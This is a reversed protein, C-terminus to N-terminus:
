DEEEDEIDDSDIDNVSEATEDNPKQVQKGIMDMLRDAYKKMSNVLNSYELPINLMDVRLNPVGKRTIKAMRKLYIDLMQRRVHEPVDNLEKLAFTTLSDWVSRVDDFNKLDRYRDIRNMGEMIIALAVSAVQNKGFLSEFYSDWKVHYINDLGNNGVASYMTSLLEEMYSSIKYKPVYKTDPVIFYTMRVFDKSLNSAKAIGKIHSSCKDYAAETLKEVLKNYVEVKEKYGKVEKSNISGDKYEKYFDNEADNIMTVAQEIILYTICSSSRDYKEDNTNQLYKIVIKLNKPKALCEFVYKVMEATQPKNTEGVGYVWEKFDDSLFISDLTKKQKSKKLEDLKKLKKIVKNYDFM